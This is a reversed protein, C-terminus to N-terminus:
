ESIGLEIGDAAWFRWEGSRKGAEYEGQSALVGNEHHTRWEGTKKGASHEGEEKTQGNEHWSHFEGDLVGDEYTTEAKKAGSKYWTRSEGDLTGRDYHQELSLTGDEYYIATKGHLVETGNEDVRQEASSMLAGSDYFEQAVTTTESHAAATMTGFFGLVGIGAGLLLRSTRIAITGTASRGALWSRQGKANM